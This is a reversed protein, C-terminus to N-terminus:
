MIMDNLLNAMRTKEAANEQVLVMTESLLQKEAVSMRSSTAVAVAIFKEEESGPLVDHTGKQIGRVTEEIIGSSMAEAQKKIAVEEATATGAAAKADVMDMYKAMQELLGYNAGLTEDVFGDAVMGFDGVNDVLISDAITEQARLRWDFTDVRAKVGNFAETLEAVDTRQVLFDNWRTWDLENEDVAQEEPEEVDPLDVHWYPLSFDAVVKQSNGSYVLIFTGGKPVGALHELAPSQKLFKAFVSLEEAREWRKLLTGEIWGLWKFKSDNLLMEYPTFASAYTIGRVSKNIGSAKQVATEYNLKFANFKFQSYGVKLDNSVKDIALDLENAGDNIFAKYSLTKAQVDKGPLEEALEVTDKVKATFKKINNLNELLDQRQFRHLVKLDRLPGLPRVRIPKLATEIQLTLVQIPLNFDEIQQKLDAEVADIDGGLHGEIRFFDYESLDYKLPEKAAATGGLSAAYYGYIASQLSRQSQQYSWNATLPHRNDPRYYYPVARGGLDVTQTLSPTIRLTPTVAPIQFLGIMRDIRQHLFRIRAIAVDQRNLQPSEYFGHRANASDGAGGLLVHKPFLEVPPVCIVNDAFLAEKFENYAQALDHLFDYLYQIGFLSNQMRQQWSDLIQGWNLTPDTKGYLDALLMRILPQWTKQLRVKLDPIVTALLNCYLTGLDTFDDLKDPDLIPRPMKYPDLLPYRRGLFMEDGFLLEANEADVLLVKLNNRAEKGKNDCGSGTCLDPDYFYSELYLVAIMGTVDRGTAATFGSLATGGTSVLEYLPMTIGDVSFHVYQADKDTFTKFRTFTQPQEINLLDGDTTLAVGKSLKVTSRTMQLDLGCVIGIGHLRARTLRQQRDLYGTLQNLQGSTLVQNEEFVTHGTVQTSLRNADAMADGM